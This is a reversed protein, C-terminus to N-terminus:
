HNNLQSTTNTIMMLENHTHDLKQSYQLVIPHNMGYEKAADIMKYRLDEIKKFYAEHSVNCM